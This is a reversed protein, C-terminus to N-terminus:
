NTKYFDTEMGTGDEGSDSGSVDVVGFGTEMRQILLPLNEAIKATLDV